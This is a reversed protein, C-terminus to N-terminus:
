FMNRVRHILDYATSDATFRIHFRLKSMLMCISPFLIKLLKKFINSADISHLFNNPRYIGHILEEPRPFFFKCSVNESKLNYDCVIAYIEFMNLNIRVGSIDTGFQCVGSLWDSLDIDCDEECPRLRIHDGVLIKPRNENSGKVTINFGYVFDSRISFQIPTYRMDYRYLNLSFHYDEM